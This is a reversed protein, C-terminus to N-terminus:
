DPWVRKVSQYNSRPDSRPPKAPTRSRQRNAASPARRQTAKGAVAASAENPATATAPEGAEDGAKAQRISNLLRRETATKDTM